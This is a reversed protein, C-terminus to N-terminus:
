DSEWWDDVDDGDGGAEVVEVVEEEPAEESWDTQSDLRLEGLALSEESSVLASLDVLLVLQEERRCVGSFVAAEPGTIWAPTQRIASREVRHMGVVGDVILGLLQRNVRVIIHKTARSAQQPELGFRRRLDIIPIVAGRLEIVGDIFASARPVPRIAHPQTIQSIRMIDVGYELEGITFVTFQQAAVSAKPQM